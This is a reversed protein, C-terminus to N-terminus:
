CADQFVPVDKLCMNNAVSPDVRERLATLLATSIALREACFYGRHVDDPRIVGFNRAFAEYPRSDALDLLTVVLLSSLLCYGNKLHAFFIEALAM